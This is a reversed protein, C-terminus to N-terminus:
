KVPRISTILWRDGEKRLEFEVAQGKEIGSLDVGEATFFDMTMSPWGLAEIPDHALKVMGHDAMVGEVRGRGAVPGDEGKGAPGISTIIWRDGEKRLEFEVEQGKELGSLDVGEATFFDMTM